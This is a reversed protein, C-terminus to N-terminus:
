APPPCCRSSGATSRPFDLPLAPAFRVALRQRQGHRRVHQVLIGQPQGRLLHAALQQLQGRGGPHVQVARPVPLDRDLQVLLLQPPVTERESTALVTCRAERLRVDPSSRVSAPPTTSCVTALRVRPSSKTSMGTTVSGSPAMTVRPSTAVIRSANTSPSTTARTSPTGATNTRTARTSPSDMTSIASSTRPQNSPYWTGRSTSTWTHFSRAWGCRSRKELRARVMTAHAHEEHEQQQRQDEVQPGRHPDRDADREREGPGQDEEARGVQGHVDAGQQGQEDHDAQHHVIGQHHALADGRFPFPALSGRAAAMSPTRDTTPGIVIAAAM